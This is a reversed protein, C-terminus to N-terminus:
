RARSHEPAQWSHCNFTWLAMFVVYPPRMASQDIKDKAADAHDWQAAVDALVAEVPKASAQSASRNRDAGALKGGRQAAAGSIYTSYFAWAAQRSARCSVISGADLTCNYVLYESTSCNRSSSYL